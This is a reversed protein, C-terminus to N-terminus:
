GLSVFKGMPEAGRPGIGHKAVPWRVSHQQVPTPQLLSKWDSRLRNLDADDMGAEVFWDENWPPAWVYKNPRIVPSTDIGLALACAVRHAGVLLEGNPDVPVAGSPLFGKATMSAFLSRAATVYDDPTMKWVDTAVGATMRAGSRVWIHWRYITEARGDSGSMLHRFFRWKVAIDYRRATVLSHTSVTVVPYRVDGM